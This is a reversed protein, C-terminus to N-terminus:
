TTTIYARYRKACARYREACASSEAAGICGGKNAHSVLIQGGNPVYSWHLKRRRDHMYREAGILRVWWVGGRECTLPIV